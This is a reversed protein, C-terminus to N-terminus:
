ENVYELTKLINLMQECEQFGFLVECNAIRNRMEEYQDRTKGTKFVIEILKPKDQSYKCPNDNIKDSLLITKEYDDKLKGYFDITVPKIKNDWV